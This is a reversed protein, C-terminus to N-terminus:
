ISTRVDCFANRYARFADVNALLYTLLGIQVCALFFVIVESPAAVTL